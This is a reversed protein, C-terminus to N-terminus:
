STFSAGSFVAGGSSGGGSTSSGGGTPLDHADAFAESLGQDEWNIFVQRDFDNDGRLNLYDSGDGGDFRALDEFRSDKVKLHDDQDGSNVHMNDRARVRKLKVFDYGSSADISVFRRFDADTAFITDANGASDIRTTGRVALAGYGIDGPYLAELAAALAGVRGLGIQDAGNGTNIILDDGIRSGTVGVADDEFLPGDDGNNSDGSDIILDFRVNAKGIGIADDGGRTRINMVDADVNVLGILDNGGDTEIGLFNLSGNRVLLANDGGNLDVRLDDRVGTLFQKSEGNITTGDRGKVKVGDSKFVILVTDNGGGGTVVLDGGTVHASVDGAMMWRGELGEMGLHRNKM